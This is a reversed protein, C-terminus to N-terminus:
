YPIVEKSRLKEPLNNRYLIMADTFTSSPELIERYNNRRVVGELSFFWYIGKLPSIFTKDIHQDEGFVKADIDDYMSYDGFKGLVAPIIRTHIHSKRKGEWANECQERYYEFARMNRTLSCSGFFDGTKSLDAINELVRYHNLEEEQECGFGLCVLYKNPVNIKSAALIAIFDELVTGSNEEDGHMLADVGGDVLIITDISFKDVIEQYAKRVLQVGHRGVTYSHTAVGIQEAIKPQYESQPYDDKETERLVFDPNRQPFYNALVIEIPFKPPNMMWTYALPLGAYVDFGGGAGIILVNNGIKLEPINLKL